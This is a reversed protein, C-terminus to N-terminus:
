RINDVSAGLVLSECSNETPSLKEGNEWKKQAGAWLAGRTCM